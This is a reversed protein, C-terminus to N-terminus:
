GTGTSADDGWFFRGSSGAKCAYDWQASTPLDIDYLFDGGAAKTRLKGMFTASAPAYIVDYGDYSPPNMSVQKTTNILFTHDQITIARLDDVPSACDLYRDVLTDPNYGGGDQNYYFEPPIIATAGAPWSKDLSYVKITSVGGDETVIVLYQETDSRKVVHMFANDAVAEDILKAVYETPPRKKLGEVVSSVANEQITAQGPHRLNDPQQSVGQVLNPVSTTILPM